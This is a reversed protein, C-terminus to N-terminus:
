SSAGSGAPPKKWERGCYVCFVGKRYAGTSSVHPPEYLVQDRHFLRLWCLLRPIMHVTASFGSRRVRIASLDM